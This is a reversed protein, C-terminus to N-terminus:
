GLLSRLQGVSEPLPSGFTEPEAEADEGLLAPVVAGICGQLALLDYGGELFAITRGPKVVEVLRRTLREFDGSSLGLDTLPDRRHADFGASILLWTPDFAAIRDGILDDLSRQYADGLTGPRVPVNLTYGVGDGAGLESPFGSDPYLPSQHWSVFLVREDSYFIDQTGNGHHADFDAILVREGRDALVKAAVAVNNFLCFGMPTTATAHHGPPRVACLAAPFEGSDLAAIADIGAGAALFGADLSGHSMVTDPDLQGGTRMAEIRSIMELSHVAELQKRHVPTPSRVEVLEELDPAALRDLVARLRTPREPHGEGTLHQTMNPHTFVVLM